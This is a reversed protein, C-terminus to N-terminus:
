KKKTKGATALRIVEGVGPSTSFNSIYIAGDPGIAMGGPMVLGESAVTDITHSGANVRALRGTVEPAILGNQDIELVYLNGQSDFELDIINTFGESYVQQASGPVVRFVRAGGIPFPFGTLQSVYLAGDPGRVVNTPVAQSPLAPPFPPQPLIPPTPVIRNPFVAVVSVERNAAVSLLVNAGADAVYAIGGAGNLVGNPNSDPGNGDPDNALEFAALDVLTRLHGNQNLMSLTGLTRGEAGLLSNRLAPNAGLGITLLAHGSGDFSIGSPGIAATGDEGALSPLGEVLREQKGKWVRTISGTLGFQHPGDGGVIVPGDGGLGAEAIYLAGNPAFDLGRPNNLGSAVVTWAAEAAQSITVPLVLGALLVAMASGIKSAPNSCPISALKM